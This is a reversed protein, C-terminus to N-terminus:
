ILVLFTDGALPVAGKKYRVVGFYHRQPVGGVALGSVALSVEVPVGVKAIVSATRAQLVADPAALGLVVTHVYLPRVGSATESIYMPTVTVTYVGARPNVLTVQEQSSGQTHSEYVMGQEGPAAAPGLVTMDFDAAFSYDADFLALRALTAGQPITVTVVAPVAFGPQSINLSGTTVQGAWLGSTAVSMAGTFGPTVSFGLKFASRNRIETSVEEPASVYRLIRVALPMQAVMGGRAETIRLVGFMYGDASRAAPGGIGNGAILAPQAALLAAENPAVRILLRQSAKARLAFNQPSVSVSIFQSAPGQLEWSVAWTSAENLVSTVKRIITRPNGPAVDPLVISPMNLNEPLCAPPTTTCAGCADGPARETGCLFNSFDQFSAAIVIGPSGLAKPADVHGAGIDFPMGIPQSPSGPSGGKTSQYATTMLASKIMSPNWTPNKQLLLAALGAVHPASMSTGSKLDFAAGTSPLWAGLVSVGPAALDPALVRGQGAMPPGRGSRFHLKPAPQVDFEPVSAFVADVPPQRVIDRIIPRLSAALSVAPLSSSPFNEATSNATADTRLMIVGAVGSQRLFDLTDLLMNPTSYTEWDCVVVKGKVMWTSLADRRCRRALPVKAKSVAADDGLVALAPAASDYLGGLFFGDGPFLRGLLRVSARMSRSHSTMAVSAVWPLANEVTGANPGNNGAAAAVFVGARLAQLLAMDLPRRMSGGADPTHGLSFNIVDVGDKVADDLAALLDAEQGTGETGWLVKYVAIRARPAVGSITTASQPWTKPLGTVQVGWNGAAVSAVHTGHGSIDRCSIVEEPHIKRMAAAGAVCYYKCAVIKNSSCPGPQAGEQLACSSGNFVRAPLKTYAMPGAAGLGVRDSFSPAEPVIGTDLVGIVIREGADTAGTQAPDAGVLDWAAGAGNAGPGQLGLFKSSVDSSAKYTAGQTIQAVAPDAALAALEAATPDLLVFGSLVYRYLQGIREASVGARAAVSTSQLDVTAAYQVAAPQAAALKATRAGPRRATGLESISSGAAWAVVPDLKLQVIYANSSETQEAQQLQRMSGHPAAAHESSALCCWSLLLLLATSLAPLVSHAGSSNRCRVFAAPM